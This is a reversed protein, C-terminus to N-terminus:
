TQGQIMQPAVTHNAEKVFGDIANNMEDFWIFQLGDNKEVPKYRKSRWLRCVRVKIQIDNQLPRIDRISVTRMTVIVGRLTVVTMSPWENRKCRKTGRRDDFTDLM